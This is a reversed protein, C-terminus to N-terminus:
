WTQWRSGTAFSSTAFAALESRLRVAVLVPCVDDGGSVYTAERIQAITAKWGVSVIWGLMSLDVLGLIVLIAAFRALGSPELHAELDSVRLGTDIGTPNSVSCPAPAHHWYSGAALSLKAGVFASLEAHLRLVVLPLIHLPSQTQTEAM